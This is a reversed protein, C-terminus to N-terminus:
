ENNLHDDQLIYINKIGMESLIMWIRASVSNDSSYLVVPGKNKRILTLNSKELISEPNMKMTKDQVRINDATDHGLNILLIEDGHSSIQDETVINTGMASPEAWKVADYRFNSQSFTRILVLLTLLIFVALILWYQKLFNM